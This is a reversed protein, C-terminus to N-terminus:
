AKLSRSDAAPAAENSSLDRAPEQQQGDFAPEPAPTIRAAIEALQKQTASMMSLMDNRLADVANQTGALAPVVKEQLMGLAQGGYLPALAPPPLSSLADTHVMTLKNPRNPGFSDTEKGGTPVYPVLGKATPRPMFAGRGSRREPRPAEDTSSASATASSITSDDVTAIAAAAAAAADVDPDAMGPPLQRVVRNGTDISNRKRHIIEKQTNAASVKRLLERARGYVKNYSEPFRIAVSEFGPKSLTYLIADTKARATATRRANSFVAIEGFYDGAEKTAYVVSMDENGIEITGLQLFYMLEGLENKLFAYDGALVVETGLQLVLQQVFGADCGEFMPVQLLLDKHLQYFIRGQLHHPFASTTAKIDYGNYASFILEHYDLLM